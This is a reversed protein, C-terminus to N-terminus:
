LIREETGIPAGGNKRRKHRRNSWIITFWKKWLAFLKKSIKCIKKLIKQFPWLIVRFISSILRWLWFFVPELLKGGTCHSLIIGLPLSATYGIRIDGRCVAFSLYLWGYFLFPCFLLDATVPHRVRLPRLAGYLVGLILGIVCGWLFRRFDLAPGTM